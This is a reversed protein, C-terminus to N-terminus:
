SNEGAKRIPALRKHHVCIVLDERLRKHILPENTKQFRNTKLRLLAATTLIEAIIFGQNPAGARAYATRCPIKM